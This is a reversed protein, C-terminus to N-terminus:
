VSPDKNRPNVTINILYYPSLGQQFM